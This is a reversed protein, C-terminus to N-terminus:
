SQTQSNTFGIKRIAEKALNCIFSAMGTTKAPSVDDHEDTSVERMGEEWRPGPHVEITEAYMNCVYCYNENHEVIYHTQMCNSLGCTYFHDKRMFYMYSRLRDDFTVRDNLSYRHQELIHEAYHELLHLFIRDFEAEPGVFLNGKQPDFVIGHYLTEREM